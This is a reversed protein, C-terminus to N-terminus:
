KMENLGKHQRGWEFAALAAAHSVNLSLTKGKLPIFVTKSAKDLFSQAIGYRENGVMLVCKGPLTTQYLNNAKEATEVAVIEFDAPIKSFFESPKCFSFDVHKLSSHAVRAIKKAKFNNEEQIFIVEAVGLNGALRIISGVNEPTRLEYAALILESEDSVTQFSKARFFDVANSYKNGM